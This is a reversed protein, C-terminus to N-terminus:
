ASFLRRNATAHRHVWEELAPAARAPIDDPDTLGTVLTVVEDLLPASRLAWGVPDLPDLPWLKLSASCVSQLDEYCVLLATEAASLGAAAALAGVAVPRPPSTLDALARGAPHQPWCQSLLRATGRGLAASSARAVESPTRAEWAAQAPQLSRGALALERTVVATGADVSVITRLRTALFEPVQSVLLGARLAPELGSSQTHGGVPLRGDALLLLSLDSM